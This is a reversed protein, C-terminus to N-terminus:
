KMICILVMRLFGFIVLGCFLVIINEFLFRILNLFYFVGLFKKKGFWNGFIILNWGVLKKEGFFIVDDLSIVEKFLDVSVM